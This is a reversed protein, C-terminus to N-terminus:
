TQCGRRRRGVGCRVVCARQVAAAALRGGAAVWRAQALSPRASARGAGHAQALVCQAHAAIGGHRLGFAAAAGGAAPAAAGATAAAPATTAAAATAAAGWGNECSSSLPAFEAGKAVSASSRCVIREDGIKAPM